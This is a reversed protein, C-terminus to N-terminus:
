DADSERDRIFARLKERDEPMIICCPIVHKDMYKFGKIPHVPPTGCLNGDWIDIVYGDKARIAELSAGVLVFYHDRSPNGVVLIVWNDHEREKVLTYVAIGSCSFCRGVKKKSKMILRGLEIWYEGFEDVRDKKGLGKAKQAIM